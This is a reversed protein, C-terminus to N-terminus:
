NVLTTIGPRVVVSAQDPGDDGGTVRARVAATV